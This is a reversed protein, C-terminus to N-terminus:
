GARGLLSQVTANFRTLNYPKRLVTDARVGREGFVEDDYATTILVKLDPRERRLHQILELGDMEGPMMVDTVVLDIKDKQESWFRLAERGDGAAFVEYGMLGLARGIFRRVDEDDEIYLIRVGAKAEGAAAPDGAPPIAIAAQATLPLYIRFITGVGWESEAEIWGDHQAATGYAAALGLGTGEGIPKTTFFPQFLRSIHEPRIGRGRDALELRAYRTAGGAAGARNVVRDDGALRVRFRGGAPMADRANLAINMISLRLSPADGNCLLPAPPLELVQEIEPGLAAQLDPAMQRLLEGLDLQQMQLLQQRGFAMLQRTVMAADQAAAAAKALTDAVGAQEAARVAGEALGIYGLVIALSNNFEHAFGAALQGLSELRRMEGVQDELKRIATIDRLITAAGAVRGEGDRLPSQTLSVHLRERNQHIRETHFPPIRQGRAVAAIVLKEEDVRDPPIIALISRGIMERPGYGFIKEAAPNWSTVIGGLTTTVIADMSNEIIGASLNAPESSLTGQAEM